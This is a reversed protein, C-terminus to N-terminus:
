SGVESLRATGTTLVVNVRWTQNPGALDIQYAALASGEFDFEAESHSVTVIVDAPFEYPEDAAVNGLTADRRYLTYGTISGGDNIFGLYHNEGTAISRRRAQSLDVALRQAHSKAGVDLFTDRGVKGIAVLAFVALVVVM